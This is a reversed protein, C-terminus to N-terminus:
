RTLPIAQALEFNVAADLKNELQFFRTVKAPPLLKRFAKVHKQRVAVEKAKIDLLEDLMRNAQEDTLTADSAVFEKILRVARDGLRAMDVRYDRYAPWFALGEEETLNITKAIIAQRTKQIEARTLEVDASPQAWVPATLLLALVLTTVTTAVNKMLM